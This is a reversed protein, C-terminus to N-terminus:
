IAMPSLAAVSGPILKEGAWGAPQCCCWRGAGRSCPCLQGRPSAGDPLTHPSQAQVGPTRGWRQGPRCFSPCLPHDCGAAVDGGHQLAWRTDGDALGLCLGLTM